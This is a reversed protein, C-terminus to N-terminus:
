GSRTASHVDIVESEGGVEVSGDEVGPIADAM